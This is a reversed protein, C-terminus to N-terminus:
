WASGCSPSPRASTRVGLPTSSIELTQRWRWATIRCPGRSARGARGRAAVDHARQVAPGVAAASACCWRCAARRAANRAPGRGSGACSGAAPISRGATRSRLPAAVDGGVQGAHARAGVEVEGAIHEVADLQVLAVVVPLGEDLDVELVVVDAREMRAQAAEDGAVVQAPLELSCSSPASRPRPWGAPCPRCGPRRASAPPLQQLVAVALRGLVARDPEGVVRVDHDLPIRVHEGHGRQM